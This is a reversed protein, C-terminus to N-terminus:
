DATLPPLAAQAVVQRMRALLEPSHGPDGWLASTSTDWLRGPMTTPTLMVGVTCHEWEEVAVSFDCHLLHTRIALADKAIESLDSAVMFLLPTFEGPNPIVTRSHSLTGEGDHAAASAFFRLLTAGLETRQEVPMGDIAALMLLRDPEQEAPVTTKAIDEMLMRFLLHKPHDDHGAPELPARSSSAASSPTAGALAAVSPHVPDPDAAIDALAYEHYRRPEDGLEVIDGGSAARLLYALVFRTSRLHDFLFEWDRRLLVVSPVETPASPPLFGNPPDAHDVIVVTLWTYDKGDVPVTRGRANTMTASTLKLQRVTGSGQKLGKDVNKRLWSLEREVNDTPETRSKAQIVAAHDGVLLLGDGLERVGSGVRQQEPLFVFDPLGWTAAADRIADEAAHGQTDAEPLPSADPIRRIATGAETEIVLTLSESM